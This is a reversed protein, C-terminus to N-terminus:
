ARAGSNGKQVRDATLREHGERSPTHLDIKVAEIKGEKNEKRRNGLKNNKGAKDHYLQYFLFDIYKLCLIPKGYFPSLHYLAWRWSLLGANPGQAPFIRQLLAHCGM